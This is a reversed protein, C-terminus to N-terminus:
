VKHENKNFINVQPASGENKAKPSFGLKQKSSEKKM